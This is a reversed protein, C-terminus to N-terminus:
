PLTKRNLVPYCLTESNLYVGKSSIGSPDHKMEDSSLSFNIKTKRESDRFGVTIKPPFCILTTVIVICNGEENPSGDENTRVIVRSGIPVDRLRM